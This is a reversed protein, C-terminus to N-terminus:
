QSRLYVNIIRISICSKFKSRTHKKSNLLQTLTLAFDTADRAASTYTKLSRYHFKQRLIFTRPKIAFLVIIFPATVDTPFCYRNCNVGIAPLLTGGNDTRDCTVRIWMHRHIHIHVNYVYTYIHSLRWSSM